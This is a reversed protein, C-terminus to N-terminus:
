YYCLLTSTVWLWSFLGGVVGAMGRLVGLCTKMCHSDSTCCLLKLKKLKLSLEMVITGLSLFITTILSISVVYGYVDVRYCRTLESHVM